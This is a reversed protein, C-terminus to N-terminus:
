CFIFRLLFKIKTLNKKKCEVTPTEEEDYEESEELQEEESEPEPARRYKRNESSRRRDNNDYRKVEKVHTIEPEPDESYEEDEEEYEGQSSETYLEENKEFDSSFHFKKFFPGNLINKTYFKM